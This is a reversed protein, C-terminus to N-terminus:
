EVDNIKIKMKFEIYYFFFFEQVKNQKIRYILVMM